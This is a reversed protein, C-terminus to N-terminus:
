RVMESIPIEPVRVREHWIRWSSLDTTLLYIHDLEAAM